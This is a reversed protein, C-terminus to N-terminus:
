VAWDLPRIAPPKKVEAAKELRELLAPLELVDVGRLARQAARLVDAFCLGRKHPYWPREPPTGLPSTAVGEAFWVVLVSYVLGVFPATRLVAKASRAPSDAFGFLQKLDRFLVEISWRRSYGLLISDVSRAVDTCFFVRFPVAGGETKVVVVRVPSAGGVRYWAGVMTKYQVTRARGYLTARLRRWPSREDAALERPKPLAAGRKRPRGTAPAASPPASLAADPRMAGVWTVRAPLGGVVTRNCYAEDASVEVPEGPLAALLRDLMARALETRKRFAEPPCTAATRYLRFLVPLAWPRSSFPPTVVVALVVWSHGFAFVKRKKTSRVADLHSGLGFVAPGKKACLTDDLVLRLPGAASLRRVLGLVVLGLADPAWTGRSFFRHFAQWHRRRAVDTAVLAETVCHLPAQTLVWGVVLVLMTAFSPRYGVAFRLPQLLRLLTALHPSPV